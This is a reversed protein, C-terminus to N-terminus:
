ASDYMSLNQKLTETINEYFKIQEQLFNQMMIKFDVVRESQFYEIEALTAYSVIDARRFVSQSLSSDGRGEEMQKLHERKKGVAGKHVQLIDPWNSLLGKYEYLADSLPELDNKPQEEYLKGINEYTSSTHRIAENLKLDENPVGSSAFAEALQSFASSIRLFERKYAHSYKKSQDQATSFLHKVSDDMKSVFRGFHDTKKDIVAVDLSGEPPRIAYFFSAGVFEDKEARRKGQKWRKEDTINLVTICVYHYTYLLIIIM